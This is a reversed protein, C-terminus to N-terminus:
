VLLGPDSPWAGEKGPCSLDGPAPMWTATETSLLGPKGQGPGEDARHQLHRFGPPGGLAAGASSHQAVADTELHGAPLFCPASPHALSVPACVECPLPPVLGGRGPAWLMVGLRPQGPVTRTQHLPATQAPRLPELRASRRFLLWFGGLARASLLHLTCRLGCQGPVVLVLALTESAPVAAELFTRRLSHGLMNLVCM